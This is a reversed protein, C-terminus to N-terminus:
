SNRRAVSKTNDPNKEMASVLKIATLRYRSLCRALIPL